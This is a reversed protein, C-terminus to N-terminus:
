CPCKKATEMIQLRSITRKGKIRGRHTRWVLEMENKDEFSIPKDFSEKSLPPILFPTKPSNEEKPQIKPSMLNKHSSQVTMSPTTPIVASIPARTSQFSTNAKLITAYGVKM